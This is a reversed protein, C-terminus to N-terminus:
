YHILKYSRPEARTERQLQSVKNNFLAFHASATDQTSPDGGCRQCAVVYYPILRHQYDPLEPVDTPSTMEKPVYRYAVVAEEAEDNAAVKFTGSGHPDQWYDVKKGNVLVETVRLCDRSLDSVSFSREILPVTEKKQQKFRLSIEYVADNAYKTFQDRYNEITQADTGRELMLLAASIIDNLTM